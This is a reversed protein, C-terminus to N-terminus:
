PRSTSIVRLRAMAAIGVIPGAALMLFAWGWNSDDRVIPVLWITVVTLTFGIALQLTVATGVYRQEAFETVVASFQASDAVVWFGWLAGVLLILLLPGHGVFGITAAALGSFTM